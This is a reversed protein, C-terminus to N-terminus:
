KSRGRYRQPATATNASMTIHISRNAAHFHLSLIFAKTPCRIESESFDRILLNTTWFFSGRMAPSKQELKLGALPRRQSM